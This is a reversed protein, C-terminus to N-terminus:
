YTHLYTNHIYLILYEYDTRFSYYITSKRVCAYDICTHRTSFQIRIPRIKGKSLNANPKHCVELSIAIEDAITVANKNKM